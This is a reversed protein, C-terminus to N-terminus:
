FVSLLTFTNRGFLFTHQYGRPHIVLNKHYIVEEKMKNYAKTIELVDAIFSTKLHSMFYKEKVNLIM